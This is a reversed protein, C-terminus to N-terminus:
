KFWNNLFYNTAFCEYGIILDLNDMFDNENENM